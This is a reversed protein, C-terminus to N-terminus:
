RYRIRDARRSKLSITIADLAAASTVDWQSITARPGTRRPAIIAAATCFQVAGGYECKLPTEM